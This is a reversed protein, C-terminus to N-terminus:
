ATAEKEAKEKIRKEKEERFERCKMNYGVFFNCQEKNTLREPFAVGDGESLEAIKDQIKQKMGYDVKNVHHQALSLIRPFVSAPKISATSMLKDAITKTNKTSEVADKQAKECIAFLEGLLYGKSKVMELLEEEESQAIDTWIENKSNQNGTGWVLNIFRNLCHPEGWTYTEYGKIYIRSSHGKLRLIYFKEGEPILNKDVDEDKFGSLISHLYSLLHPNNTESWYVYTSDGVTTRHSLDSLMYNLASSYKFMATKGFPSNEMQVWGYNEFGHSTEEISVLKAFANADKVGKIGPHMTALVDEKGTVICTIREGDQHLSYYNEWAEKVLPNDHFFGDEGDVVIAINGALVGKSNRYGGLLSYANKYKEDQYLKMVASISENDYGNLVECLKNYFAEVKKRGAEETKDLGLVYRENDWAFNAVINSSRGMVQEPVIESSPAIKKKGTVIIPGFAIPNGEKDITLKFTLKELSYGYAPLPLVNVNNDYFDVLSKFVWGDASESDKEYDVVGDVMEANFWAQTCGQESFNIHHLMRGLAHTEGDYYSPPIENRDSLEVVDCVFEKCGLFPPKFYQGKRLRQSLIAEHKKICDNPSTGKGTLEMHFEVAYAVDRLVRMSRPTSFKRRYTSAESAGIGNTQANTMITEHKIENLVHVKEIVYRMEPKWYVSSLLGILASPTPVDYSYKEVKLEPRSFMARKGTILVIM